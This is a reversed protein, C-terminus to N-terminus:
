RQASGIVTQERGDFTVFSVVRNGQGQDNVTEVTMRLMGNTRDIVTTVTGSAAPPPGPQFTSKSLNRKWNGVFPDASQALGALPSMLVVTALLIASIRTM